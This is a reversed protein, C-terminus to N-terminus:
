VSYPNWLKLLIVGDKGESSWWSSVGVPFIDRLLLLVNRQGKGVGRESIINRSQFNNIKILLM